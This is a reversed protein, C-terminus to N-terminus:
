WGARLVVFPRPEARAYFAWVALPGVIMLVAQLHRIM